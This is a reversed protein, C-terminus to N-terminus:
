PKEVTVWPTVSRHQIHGHEEHRVAYEHATERDPANTTPGEPWYVRWEDLWGTTDVQAHELATLAVRARDMYKERHTIWAAGRHDVSGRWEFEFLAVAIKDVLAPDSAMSM